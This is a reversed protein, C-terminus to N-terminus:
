NLRLLFVIRNYLNVLLDTDEMCEKTIIKVSEKGEPPVMYLEKKEEKSPTKVKAANNNEPEQFQLYKRTVKPKKVAAMDLPKPRRKTPKIDIEEIDEPDSESESKDWRKSLKFNVSERRKLIQM